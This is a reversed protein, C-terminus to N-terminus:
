LVTEEYKLKKKEYDERSMVVRAPSGMVVMNDPVDRTVISGAAVVARRGIRVGAIITSNAGIVAEEEVITEILRRSPPYKDNTIVARPGIFVRDKIVVMSPIYVGSQINVNSGITVRGDVITGSGILTNDGVRSEERILVHHGTKVGKGIYVKEYIVTHSRVICESGILAGSGIDIYTYPETQKKDVDLGGRRIGELTERSPFGIISYGGIYSGDGIRTEGYITVTKDVIAKGILARRSIM